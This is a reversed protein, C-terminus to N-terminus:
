GHRRIPRGQLQPSIAALLADLASAPKAPELIGSRDMCRRAPGGLKREAKRGAMLAVLEEPTLTDDLGDNPESVLAEFELDAETTEAEAQIATSIRLDYEELAAWLDDAEHMYAQIDRYDFDNEDGPESLAIINQVDDLRRAMDRRSAQMTELETPAPKAPAAPAEDLTYVQIGDITKWSGVLPAKAPAAQGARVQQRKTLMHYCVSDQQIPDIHSGGRNTRDPCNCNHITTGYKALAEPTATRPATKTKM